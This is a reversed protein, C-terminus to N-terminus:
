YNIKCFREVDQISGHGKFMVSWHHHRLIKVFYIYPMAFLVIDSEIRIVKLNFM